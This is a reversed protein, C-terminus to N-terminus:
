RAGLRVKSCNSTFFDDIGPCVMTSCGNQPHWLGPACAACEQGPECQYAFVRLQPAEAQSYWREAPAAGDAGPKDDLLTLNSLLQNASWTSYAITPIRIRTPDHSTVWNSPPFDGMVNNVLMTAM